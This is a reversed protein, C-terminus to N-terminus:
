ADMAERKIRNRRRQAALREERHAADYRRQYELRYERNAQRWAEIQRQLKDKHAARYQRDYEARKGSARVKEARRKMAMQAKAKSRSLGELKADADRARSEAIEEDTLALTDKEDLEADFAALEALEEPTFTEAM